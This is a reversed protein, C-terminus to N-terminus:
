ASRARVEQTEGCAEVIQNAQQVLHSVSTSSDAVSLYEIMLLAGDYAEGLRGCDASNRLIPLMESVFKEDPNLVKKVVLAPLAEVLARVNIADVGFKWASALAQNAGDINGMQAQLEAVLLHKESKLSKSTPQSNELQESAEALRGARLYGRAVINALQIQYHSDDVASRIVSDSKMLHAFFDCAQTAKGADVLANIKGFTMCQYCERSPPLTELIEEIMTLRAQAYGPGDISKYIAELDDAVCVRQPCDKTQEAHSFALLDLAESLIPRHDRQEDIYAQLHWHRLYVELWTNDNSRAFALLEPYLAEVAEVDRDYAISSFNDIKDAMDEMGADYLDDTYNHLWTWVSDDM